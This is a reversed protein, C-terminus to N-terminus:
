ATVIEGALRQAQSRRDADGISNAIFSVANSARWRTQGGAPLMEVDAGEFATKISEKEGKTLDSGLKANLQKWSM